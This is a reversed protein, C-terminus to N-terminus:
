KTAIYMFTGPMDGTGFMLLSNVVGKSNESYIRFFDRHFEKSFIVKGDKILLALAHNYDTSVFAYISAGKPASKVHWVSGSRDIQYTSNAYTETAGTQLHWSFFPQTSLEPEAQAKSLISHPTGTNDIDYLYFINKDGDQTIVYVHNDGKVAKIINGEISLQKVKGNEDITYIKGTDTYFLGMNDSIDTFYKVTGDINANDLPTINGTSPDFIYLKLQNNEYIKVIFTNGIQIVSYPDIDEVKKVSDKSILYHEVKNMNATYITLIIDDGLAFIEGPAGEPLSSNTATEPRVTIGLNRNEIIKGDKDLSLLYVTNDKNVYPIFVTNDKIIFVPAGAGVPFWLSMKYDTMTTTDFLTRGDPAVLKYQWQSNKNYGLGIFLNDGLPRWTLTEENGKPMAFTHVVKGNRDVKTFVYDDGELEIWASGDDNVHMPNVAPCDCWPTRHTPKYTSTNFLVKGNKDILVAVGEWPFLLWTRDGHQYPMVEMAMDRNQFLDTESKSGTEPNINMIKQTGDRDGIVLTLTAGNGLAYMLKGDDLVQSSGDEKYLVVKGDKTDVMYAHTTSTTQPSTCGVFLSLVLFVTLMVVFPSFTKLTKM